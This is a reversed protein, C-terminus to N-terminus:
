RRTHSGVQWTFLRCQGTCQGPQRVMFCMQGGGQTPCGADEARGSEVKGAMARRAAQAHCRQRYLTLIGQGPQAIVRIHQGAQGFQLGSCVPLRQEGDRPQITAHHATHRQHQGNVLLRHGPQCHLHQTNGATRRRDLDFDALKTDFGYLDGIQPNRHLLVTIDPQM